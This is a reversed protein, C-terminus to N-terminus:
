NKIKKRNFNIEWIKDSIEKLMKISVVFNIPREPLFPKGNMGGWSCMIYPKQTVHPKEVKELNEDLRIPVLDDFEKKYKTYPEKGYYSFEKKFTKHIENQLKKKDVLIARLRTITDKSFNHKAKAYNDEYGEVEAYLFLYKDTSNEKSIWGEQWHYNKDIFALEQSFTYFNFVTILKADINGYTPSIYDIGSIQKEKDHVVSPNGLDKCVRTLQLIETMLEENKHDLNRNTDKRSYRTYKEM